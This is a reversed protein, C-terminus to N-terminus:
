DQYTDAQETREQRHQEKTMLSELNRDERANGQERREGKVREELPVWLSSGLFSLPIQGGFRSLL